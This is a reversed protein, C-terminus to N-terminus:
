QGWCHCLVYGLCLTPFHGWSTRRRRTIAWFVTAIFRIIRLSGPMRWFRSVHAVPGGLTTVRESMCSWRCISWTLLSWWPRWLCQSLGSHFAVQRDLQATSKVVLTDIGIEGVAVVRAAETRLRSCLEAVGELRAKEDWDMVVSPHAGFAQLVSGEEARTGPLRGEPSIMCSDVAIGLPLNTPQVGSVDYKSRLSELKVSLHCKKRSVESVVQHFHFHADTLYDDRGYAMVVEFAPAPPCRGTGKLLERQCKDLHARSYSGHVARLQGSAGASGSPVGRDWSAEALWNRFVDQSGGPLFSGLVLLVRWHLLAAVSNLPTTSFGKKPAPVKLHALFNSWSSNSANVPQVPFGHGGMERQLRIAHDLLGNLDAAAPCMVSALHLLLSGILNFTSSM